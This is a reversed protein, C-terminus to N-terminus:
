FYIFRKLRFDSPYFVEYKLTELLSDYVWNLTKYGEYYILLTPAKEACFGESFAIYMWIMEHNFVNYKVMFNFIISM